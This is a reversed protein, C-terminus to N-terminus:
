IASLPGTGRGPWRISKDMYMAKDAKKYAEFISQGEHATSAGLSISVGTKEWSGLPRKEDLNFIDILGRIRAIIQELKM